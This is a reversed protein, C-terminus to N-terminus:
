DGGGRARLLTGFRVDYRSAYERWPAAGAVDPAPDWLLGYRVAVWHGGRNTHRGYVRLVGEDKDLDFAKTAGLELGLKRAIALLERNRLGARGRKLREVMSAAVYVDEYGVSASLLTALAATGCDGAARQLVLRVM